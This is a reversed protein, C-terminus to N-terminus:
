FCIKGDEIFRATVDMELYYKSITICRSISWSQSKYYMRVIVNHLANRQANLLKLQYFNSCAAPSLHIGYMAYQMLTSM